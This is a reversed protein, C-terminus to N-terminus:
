ADTAATEASEVAPLRQPSESNKQAYESLEAYVPLGNAFKVVTGITAVEALDDPLDHREVVLVNILGIAEVLGDDGDDTQLAKLRARYQRWSAATGYRFTLRPGETAPKGDLDITFTDDPHIM